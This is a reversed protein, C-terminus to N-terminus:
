LVDLATLAEEATVAGDEVAEAVQALRESPVRSLADLWADLTVPLGAAEMARRVTAEPDTSWAVDTVPSGDPRRVRLPPV